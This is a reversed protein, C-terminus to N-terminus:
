KDGARKKASQYAQEAATDLKHLSQLLDERQPASVWRTPLNVTDQRIRAIIKQHDAIQKMFSVQDREAQELRDLPVSVKWDKKPHYRKLLETVVDGTSRVMGIDNVTLTIQHLHVEEASRGTGQPISIRAGFRVKCTEIPIYVDKNYDEETGGSSSAGRPTRDKIVGIVEYQHKNIEVSKGVPKEFPFLEEAVRAGLVVVDRCRMNNGEVRQDEGDVLFRGVAKDFRNIKGYDETTAVVRANYSRDLRRVENPFVRMPVAGVVTDIMKCRMYDDWTLGYHAVWSGRKKGLIDDVPKVSHIFVNTPGQRKIDELVDEWNGKMQAILGDLGKKESDVQNTLAALREMQSNYDWYGIGTAAALVVGVALGVIILRSRKM